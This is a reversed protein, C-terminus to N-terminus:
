YLREVDEGTMSVIMISTTQKWKKYGTSIYYADINEQSDFVEILVFKNSTEIEQYFLMELAGKANGRDVINKLTIDRFENISERKIIFNILVTVM